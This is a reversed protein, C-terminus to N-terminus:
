QNDASCVHLKGLISIKSMMCWKLAIGKLCLPIAVQQSDYFHPTWMTKQKCTSSRAPPPKLRLLVLWTNLVFNLQATSLKELLLLLFLGQNTRYSNIFYRKCWLATTSKYAMILERLRQSSVSPDVGEMLGYIRGSYVWTKLRHFKHM